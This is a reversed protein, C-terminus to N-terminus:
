VNETNHISKSKNGARGALRPFYSERFFTVRTQEIQNRM